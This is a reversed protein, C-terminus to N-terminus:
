YNQKVKSETLRKAITRRMNTLPIDVYKAGAPVQPTAPAPVAKAPESIPAPPSSAKQEM